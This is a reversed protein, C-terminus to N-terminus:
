DVVTGFDIAENDPLVVVRSATATYFVQNGRAYVDEDYDTLDVWVVSGRAYRTRIIEATITDIDGAIKVDVLVPGRSKYRLVTYTTGLRKGPQNTEKDWERFPKSNLLQYAM